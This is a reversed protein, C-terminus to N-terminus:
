VSGSTENYGRLKPNKPGDGGRDGEEDDHQPKDPDISFLNFLESISMLMSKRVFIDLAFM